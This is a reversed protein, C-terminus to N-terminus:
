RRTWSVPLLGGRGGRARREDTRPDSGARVPRPCRLHPVCATRDPHHHRHERHAVPLGRWAGGPRLRDAASADDVPRPPRAELGRPHRRGAPVLAGREAGTARNQCRVCGSGRLHPNGWRSSPRRASPRPGARHDLRPRIRHPDHFRRAPFPAALAGRCPGHTRLSM